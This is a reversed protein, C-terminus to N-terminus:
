EEIWSQFQSVNTSIARANPYAWEPPLLTRVIYVGREPDEDLPAVFNPKRSHDAHTIFLPLLWQYRGRHYQPVALRQWLRHSLEVAGFIALYLLRENEIEPLYEKLRSRREELFHEWNYEIMYEPHYSPPEYSPAQPLNPIPILEEEAKSPPRYRITLKRGWLISVFFWPQKGEVTNKTFYAFIPTGDDTVLTGIRWVAFRGDPDYYILKQAYALEFNIQLYRELYAYPNEKTGWKEQIAKKAITECMAKPDRIWAFEKLEM